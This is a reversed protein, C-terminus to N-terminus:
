NSEKNVPLRDDVIVYIWRFNKFFRLVYIGRLRFRHFIPPYVGMSLQSAMAKDIIMDPDYQMGQMGGVLLEDRTALVSLASIFWCDGLAGQKVDNAGAGDDIFQPVTDPECIEDAHVWKVTSPEPYGPCPIKGEKYMAAISGAEDKADKAGFDPDVYKKIGKAKLDSYIAAVQALAAKESTLMTSCGQFLDEETVKYDKYSVNLDKELKEEEPDELVPEGWNLGYLESFENFHNFQIYAM